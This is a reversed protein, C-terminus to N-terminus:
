VVISEVARVLKAMRDCWLGSAIMEVRRTSQGEHDFRVELVPGGLEVGLRDAWEIATVVDDRLEGGGWQWGISVMDEIGELRYADMHVLDVPSTPASYEQALVFTPSSVDDADLDMGVALGRVFQTKGAGLDGVLAVVDGASSLRGVAAGILVTAEPSPSTGVWSVEHPM